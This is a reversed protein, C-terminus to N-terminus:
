TVETPSAPESLLRRLKKASEPTWYPPDSSSRKQTGAFITTLVSKWELSMSSYLAEAQKESIKKMREVTLVCNTGGVASVSDPAETQMASILALAKETDLRYQLMEKGDSYFVLTANTSPESM